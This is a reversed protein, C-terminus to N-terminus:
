PGDCSLLGRHVFNAQVPLMVLAFTLLALYSSRLRVATISLLGLMLLCLFLVHLGGFLWSLNSSAPGTCFVSFEEHGSVSAWLLGVQGLLFFAILAVGLRGRTLYTM